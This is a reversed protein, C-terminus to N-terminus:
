NRILKYSVGVSGEFDPIPPNEKTIIIEVEKALVYKEIIENAIEMVITELLPTAIAMRNKILEYITVYDITEEIAVVLSSPLYKITANVVFSNGTIREHEYLGHFGYFSLNNLNISLM